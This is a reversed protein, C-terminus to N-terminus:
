YLEEGVAEGKDIIEFPYEADLDYGEFLEELLTKRKQPELIIKNDEVKYILEDKAQLNFDDLIKKPLRIALSNGWKALSLVGFTEMLVVERTINM